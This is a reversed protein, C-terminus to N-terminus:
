GEICMRETLEPQGVVHVRLVNLLMMDVTSRLFCTICNCHQRIDKVALFISDLISLSLTLYWIVM